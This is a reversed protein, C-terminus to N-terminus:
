RASSGPRDQFRSLILYIALVGFIALTMVLAGAIAAQTGLHWALVWICGCLALSWIAIM